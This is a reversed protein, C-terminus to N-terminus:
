PLVVDLLVVDPALRAILDIAAAGTAAEGIVRWGAATLREAVAARFRAHDDVVVLTGPRAQSTAIVTETEAGAHSRCLPFVRAPMVAMGRPAPPRDRCGAYCLCRAEPWRRDGDGRPSHVVIVVSSVRGSPTLSGSLLAVQRGSPQRWVSTSFRPGAAIVNAAARARAGSIPRRPRGRSKEIVTANASTRVGM